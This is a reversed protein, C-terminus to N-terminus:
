IFHFQMLTLQRAFRGNRENEPWLMVHSTPEGLQLNSYVNFWVKTGILVCHESHLTSSEVSCTSWHIYPFLVGKAVMLTLRNLVLFSITCLAGYAINLIHFFLSPPVSLCSISTIQPFSSTFVSFFMTNSFRFLSIVANIQRCDLQLTPSSLIVIVSM